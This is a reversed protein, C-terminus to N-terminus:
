RRAEAPIQSYQKSLEAYNVREGRSRRQWADMVARDTPAGALSVGVFVVLSLVLGVYIPENAFIGDFRQEATIELYGMTLMTGVSGAVMASTAGMGTGRKWMLGGVIPVLLGGVLIDYAITLAAVVDPVVLAIVMVVAGLGLVWRRNFEVDQEAVETHAAAEDAIHAIDIPSLHNPRKGAAISRLLPMVDSQMVTAAAILGGSATSMMAAVGATLALGGLGVPLMDLAVRAYVDDRVEIGPLVVAAGMGIIAGVIGFLICYVGASLGGIQAIRPTRATFVRQWIDQGILLGLTYVVFYTIISQLGMGGIDFFEADLRQSLGEWGGAHHLSIPLMLGFTGITMLIFQAMDALTISWMGGVTAYILVVSGGVLVALWRDWGFLVAFVAAYAGTSTAAIMLTYALMVVSSAQTIESGYRLTLMQSVTFIRLRQIIPAFMTCLLGVGIGISIVLWMGSIGYQYGLGVGGVAAAGGLVVAAMTGTYLIGGLNRGAVLYDSSTAIRRKGWVGFGIMILLYAILVAVNIWDM